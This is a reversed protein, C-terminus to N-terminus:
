VILSYSAQYTVSSADSPVVYLYWRRSISGGFRSLYFSGGNLAAAVPTVGPCLELSHGTAAAAAFGVVGALFVLQNASDEGCIYINLTTAAAKASVWLDVRVGRANYNYQETSFAGATRAASALLTGETNGRQRDFSSGNYLGQLALTNNGAEGDVVSAANKHTCINGSHAMVMPVVGQFGTPSVATFDAPTPLTDTASGDAGLALKVRQYKVGGVDDAAFTDGGAAPNTVFNDAM